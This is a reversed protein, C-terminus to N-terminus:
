DELIYKRDLVQYEEPFYMQLISTYYNYPKHQYSWSQKHYLRKNKYHGDEGIRPAFLSSKKELITSDKLVKPFVSPNIEILNNLKSYNISGILEPMVFPGTEKAIQESVRGCVAKVSKTGCEELIQAIGDSIIKTFSSSEKNLLFTNMNESLSNPENYSLPLKPIRDDPNVINFSTQDLGYKANYEEAFKKDGVMPAAFSYTKFKNRKSLKLFSLNELYARLMNALAGGQSHGTIIFHRVGKRNLGKIQKLIDKYLFAVGLSYGAHVAAEKDKAFRYKFNKGSVEITGKAPIMASYINELWSIKKSTSGRFNIVAIDGKQYIQFQNDMGIVPSTYIKIYQSPIIEIDSNYLELFSFSNCIAIMDRAEEKKFGAELQGFSPLNICLISVFILLAKM